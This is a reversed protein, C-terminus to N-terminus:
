NGTNLTYDLWIADFADIIGDGNMDAAAFQASDTYAAKNCMVISRIENYDTSDVANDKNVDGSRVITYTKSVPSTINVTGGTTVGLVTAKNTSPANGSYRSTTCLIQDKAVAGKPIFMFSRENDFTATSGWMPIIGTYSQATIAPYSLTYLATSFHTGGNVHNGDGDSGNGFKTKGFVANVSESGVLFYDYYTNTQDDWTVDLGYWKGDEMQVYNWAHAGGNGTGIVIICPINERDCILKMAESYGECVAKGKLLAGTPQHAMLSDPDSADAYTYTIMDCLTDHISKVKEYRNRGTVNFNEVATLLQTYIENVYDWDAYIQTNLSLSLTLNYYSANQGGNYGYGSIWFFEPYDDMVACLAAQVTVNPEEGTKAIQLNIVGSKYLGATQEVIQDYVSKQVANLQSAFLYSCSPNSYFNIPTNSSTRDSIVIESGPYELAECYEPAIESVSSFAYSFISFIPMIVALCMLVISLKKM